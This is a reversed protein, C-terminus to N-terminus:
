PVGVRCSRIFERETRGADDITRYFEDYYKLAQEVRQPELGDLTRYLAYISDKQLKFPAFAVALEEPTRCPGRFLRQRVSTIRLRADPQAYPTAIVGSWDFDYPVPYIALTSDRILVINHLGWASWDTNAVMYEFVALLGLQGFDLDDQTAGKEAVVTAQNRRAMRDDDELFFAWRTEPERKGRADAYTVRVLRVRFSRDTIRNYLRYILYEELLYNAYARSGRCQVVLKLNHQHAFVTHGVQARDFGVKLPPYPCTRLRFHGRTHLQVDLKVSDAPTVAYALVGPHDHKETGREKAIADFDATLTVALADSAEFLRSRESAAVATDVPTPAQWRSWLPAGLGDGPTVGIAALTALAMRRM